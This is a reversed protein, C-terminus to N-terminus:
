WYSRLYAPLQHRLTLINEHHKERLQHPQFLNGTSFAPASAASAGRFSRSNTDTVAAGDARRIFLGGGANDNYFGGGTTGTFTAAKLAALSAYRTFEVHSQRGVGNRDFCRGGLDDGIWRQNLLDIVGSTNSESATYTATPADNLTFTHADTAAFTARGGIAQVSANVTLFTTNGMGTAARNFVPNTDAKILIVSALTTANALQV